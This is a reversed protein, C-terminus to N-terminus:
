QKVGWCQSITKWATESTLRDEEIRLLRFGHNEAWESKSRDRKDLGHQIAWKSRHWFFGDYEILLNKAPIYFDFPKSYGKPRYQFIFDIGRKTLVAAICKEPCTPSKFVGDMAGSIWRNTMSISHSRTSINYKILRQRVSEGSCGILKGIQSLTLGEKEYRTVFWERDINMGSIRGQVDRQASPRLEIGMCSLRGRIVDGGVGTVREMEHVNMGGNVYLSRIQEEDVEIKNSDGASRIPIDYEALWRQITPATCNALQAVATTSLREKWYKDYLWEKSVSFGHRKISAERKTRTPIGYRHLGNAITQEDCGALAAMERLLLGETCYKQRLWSEDKWLM